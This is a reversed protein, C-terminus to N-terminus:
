GNPRRRWWVLGVLGAVVVGVVAIVAAIVGTSVGSESSIPVVAAAASPEVAASPVVSPAASPSAPPTTAVPPQAKNSFAYEGKITHGDASVTEWRVTVAGLPLPSVPATITKDLAEADGTRYDDGDAGIVEVKTGAQKILGSFTLTVASIPKTVSAKAAPVAKALKTHASAPTAPAVVVILGVFLAALAAAHRRM